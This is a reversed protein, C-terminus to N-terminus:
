KANRHTANGHEQKRPKETTAKATEAEDIVALAADLMGILKEAPVARGIGIRSAKGKVSQLDLLEVLRNWDHTTRALVLVYDYHEHPRLEIEAPGGTVADPKPGGRAEEAELEMRMEALLKRLDAEQAEIAELLQKQAAADADAMAALPDLLLLLKDAEEATVDVVLVPVVQESSEDARLHGDILLLGDETERAILADAFGIEALMARVAERQPQNHVRWNKPNALLESAKVRRLEKIRDRFNM